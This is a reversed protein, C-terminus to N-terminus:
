GGAKMRWVNLEVTIAHFGSEVFRQIEAPFVASDDVSLPVEVTPRESSQRQGRVRCHLEKYHSNLRELVSYHALYQGFLSALEPQDPRVYGAKEEIVKVIRGGIAVIGDFYDEVGYGRGYVEAIHLITRFRGWEGRLKIEFIKGDVRDTRADDCLRFQDPEAKSLVTNMHRYLAQSEGFLAHLPGYLESLQKLQWQVLSNGIELKARGSALEREQTAKAEAIDRASKSQDEALVRQHALLKQQTWITVLAGLFMGVLSGGLSLLAPTYDTANTREALRELRVTIDSLQALMTPSPLPVLENATAGGANAVGASIAASPVVNQVPPATQGYALHVCLFSTAVIRWLLVHRM